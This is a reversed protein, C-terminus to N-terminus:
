NVIVPKDFRLDIRKPKEGEIRTRELIFQLSDLQEKIEKQASFLVQLDDKYGVEIVRASTAQASEPELLRLQSEHLIQIEKLVMEEQIKEGINQDIEDTTLALPLGFSQSGKELLVGEKDALYFDGGEKGIAVVAQRLKIEFLLDHPLQKGIEVQFFEPHKQKIQWSLKQPSLFLINKGSTENMLEAWLNALCPDGNAHCSVRKVQWFDSRLWFVVGLISLVIGLFKFLRGLRTQSGKPPM